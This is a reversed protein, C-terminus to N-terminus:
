QVACHPVLPTDGAAVYFVYRKGYPLEFTVTAEEARQAELTLELAGGLAAAGPLGLGAKWRAQHGASYSWTVAGSDASGSLDERRVIRWRLPDSASLPPPGPLDVVQHETGEPPETDYRLFTSGDKSVYRTATILMRLRLSKASENARLTVSDSVTVSAASGFGTGMVKLELGGGVERRRAYTFTSSGGPPVPLDVLPVWAPERSLVVEDPSYGRLRDILARWRQAQDALGRTTGPVAVRDFEPRGPDLEGQEMLELVGPVPSWELTGLGSLDATLDPSV